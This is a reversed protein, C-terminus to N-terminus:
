WRVVRCPLAQLGALYGQLTSSVVRYFLRRDSGRGCGQRVWLWVGTQGLGLGTQGSGEGVGRPGKEIGCQGQGIGEENNEIGGNLGWQEIGGNVRVLAWQCETSGKWYGWQGQGVGMSMGNVRKLVGMSGSWRGRQGRKLVEMSASWHGRWQKKEIGGNLGWQEIGGNVRVLAWQCETSGKWYGWQGQGVGMSMGNVRKLVGMSGSWRGRQGRKLVEMSASWHGRWQKKEIGGNLGWQEIGGNVRVLAWGKRYGWQGERGPLTSRVVVRISHICTNARAKKMKRICEFMHRLRGVSHCGAQGVLRHLWADLFGFASRDGDLDEDSLHHPSSRSLQKENAAPQHAMFFAFGAELDHIIKKQSQKMWPNQSFLSHHNHYINVSTKQHKKPPSSPSRWFRRWSNPLPAISFGEFHGSVSPEQFMPTWRAYKLPHPLRIKLDHGTRTHRWLNQIGPSWNFSLPM